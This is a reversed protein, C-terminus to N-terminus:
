PKRARIIAQKELGLKKLRRYLTTRAIGLRRAAESLNGNTESLMQLLREREGLPRDDSTCTLENKSDVTLLTCTQEQADALYVNGIAPPFFASDIRDGTCFLMAHEVANELERVNGPWDYRHVLFDKWEPDIKPIPRNYKDAFRRVFHDLLLPIDDRRDRLPPIAISIVHLRYFLDARFRKEQVMQVLDRHTAAIIRVDVKVPRSGGLRLIEKEQLVRLLHVQFELPMEGIEDLFLTGGDAEEFKGKKGQKLGGTFTGPEYGFLEASILEKPIAGCNIAIFPKDRRRSSAHIARAFREKGTGSEGLLLVPVDTDAVVECKTMAQVIAPSHGVLDKWSANSRMLAKSRNVVSKNRIICLFGIRADDDFIEEIATVDPTQSQFPKCIQADTNSRHDTLFQYLLQPLYGENSALWRQATPNAQVVQFSLDLVVVGDNPYRKHTEWFREILQYRHHAAEENLRQQILQSAAVALGLSHPQAYNWPGTLDVVGLINQTIPDFIPSSSCTWEHVGECFHESAFIQVPQGTKLCTGIANTGIVEESWQSGVVFNMKEARQLISQEGCLYLIFGEHNCLTLLHGTGETQKALRELVPLTLQYLRFNAILKQVDEDNLLVTTQRRTPDVGSEM